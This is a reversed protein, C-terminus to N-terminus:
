GAFPVRLNSSAEASFDEADVYIADFGEPMTEQRRQQTVILKVDADQLMLRLREQPESAEFAVYVGGAKLIALLTVVMEVSRDMWVCVQSETSVGRRRLVRAMRNARENLEAYSLQEAASVLAMAEPRWAAQEEFLEHIGRHRPYNTATENWQEVVQARESESALPLQAIREDPNAVVGRLLNEYHDLMRKVTTAEFLDTNYELWGNLAESTATMSLTLDFHTTTTEIEFPSLQLTSFRSETAPANQLVFVVQFMPTHSLSREPQLEEILKEFPLDQHAYAGLSTERVRALLDRFTPDGSLDSRLALTNVFFGILPETEARNRNAIPSGVVIDHQGSYRHLLTQWAALLTMFLTVGERRSLVILEEALEGSLSFPHLAGTYTQVAPRPRDTPLQLVDPADALQEKWYSLQADLVEGQLWERQWVSFDAYQIPLDKLTAASDTIASEYFAAVERILVGMSWGDAIIHHMTLVAIHEQAGTRLLMMRLLPGQALDFGRQTEENVLIKLEAKRHGSPLSSLDVFPIKIARPPNIVQVPQGEVTLM